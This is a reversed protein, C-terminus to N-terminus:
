RRRRVRVLHREPQEVQDAYADDALVQTIRALLAARTFPKEIVPTGSEPWADTGASHEGGGPEGGGPRQYGSMFLVRIDPRITKVRAAFAEGTMGPMVVDTLLVDARTGPDELVDLADQGNAATIVRYGASTLVRHAVERIAAEDDVVLVVGAYERASGPHAAASGTAGSGSGPAAPLIVTVTTGQDPASRLWARGGARAAFRSVASLGLGAAQDGSKTTFFPEFAREATAADMGAGTDTIRLEVYRGPLLEALDAGDQRDPVSKATDINTSEITVRGGAPMADRANVAINMIAQELLAPDAQVPWLGADQRTVLPVREGLMERLLRTVDNILQGFDLLVPKGEERRAFALLHKILRKARDAADEIQEVDWRVPEWRTASETAEAVSVEDRVLSAYNGIVTLLNNFDHAIGGVLQGVNEARRSQQLEQELRGIEARAQEAASTDEIFIALYREGAPPQIASGTLQVFVIAGDERVLRLNAQIQDTEGSVVSHILIELAPQDDPHVDGLFDARGLEAPTYGTLQCFTENVALYANPRDAILSTVLMGVPVRGFQQRFRQESARLVGALDGAAVEAPWEQSASIDEPAM